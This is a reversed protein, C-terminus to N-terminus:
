WRKKEKKRYQLAVSTLGWFTKVSSKSGSEGGVGGKGSAYWTVIESPGFDM